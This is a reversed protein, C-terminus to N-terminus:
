YRVWLEDGVALSTLATVGPTGAILEKTTPNASYAAAGKWVILADGFFVSPEAV